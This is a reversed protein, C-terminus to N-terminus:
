QEGKENIPPNKAPRERFESPMQFRSDVNGAAWKAPLPM